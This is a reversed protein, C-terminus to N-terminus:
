NGADMHSLKCSYTIRARPSEAGRSEVAGISMYATVTWVYVFIIFIIRLFLIRTYCGLCDTFSAIVDKQKTYLHM